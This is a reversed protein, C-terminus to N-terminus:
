SRCPYALTCSRGSRLEVPRILASKLADQERVARVHEVLREWRAFGYQCAVDSQAAALKINRDRALDKAQKRLQELSPRPPLPPM